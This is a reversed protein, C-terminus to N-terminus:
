RKVNITAPQSPVGGKGVAVIAVTNAQPITVSASKTESSKRYPGEPAPAEYVIVKEAACHTVSSSCGKGRSSPDGSITSCLIDARHEDLTAIREKLNCPPEAPISVAERVSNGFATRLEVAEVGNSPSAVLASFARCYRGPNVEDLPIRNAGLILYAFSHPTGQACVTYTSPSSWQATASTLALSVGEPPTSGAAPAPLKEVVAHAFRDALDDFVGDGSHKIQSIIGQFLQGSQLLVGGSENETHNVSILEKGTTDTITIGGQLQNYYGAIVNNRSFSTLSVTAFGDVLYNRAIEPREPCAPSSCLQSIVRDEIVVFNRNRLENIIAARALDVRERPIDVSYDAPLVALTLPLSGGPPLASKVTPACASITALILSTLAPRITRFVIKM